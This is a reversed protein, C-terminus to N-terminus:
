KLLPSPALSSCSGWAPPPPSLGEGSCGASLETGVGFGDAHPQAPCAGSVSRPNPCPQAPSAAPRAGAEGPGERAPARPQAPSGVARRAGAPAEESPQAGPAPGRTRPELASPALGAGAVPLFASGLDCRSAGAHQQCPPNGQRWPPLGLNGPLQSTSPNDCWVAAGQAPAWGTGAALRPRAGARQIAPTRGQNSTASAPPGWRRSV